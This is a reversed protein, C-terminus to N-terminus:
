KGDQSTVSPGGGPGLGDLYKERSKGIGSFTKLLNNDLLVYMLSDRAFTEVDALLTESDPNAKWRGHAITSRFKYGKKVKATLEQAENYDKALFAAIRQSLNQSIKMGDDPGFLSELAVWVLFYRIIDVYTQLAARIAQFANWVSGEGRQM